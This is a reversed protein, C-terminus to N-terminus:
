AKEELDKLFKIIQEKTLLGSEHISVVIEIIGEEKGFHKGIHYAVIIASSAIIAEIM